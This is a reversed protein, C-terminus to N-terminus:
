PERQVGDQPSRDPSTTTGSPFPIPRGLARAMEASALYLDYTARAESTEATLLALQADSVELQTSLGRSFRLTALQFAERAESSTQQRAEFVASARTLEARGRAVEISVQEREQRLELDAIRAQARALSLNSKARFGDFVPISIVASLSRDSFWGGNQCVRDPATGGPCFEAAARGFQNPFGYGLPPFAQYGTQFSISATPLFDARAVTIGAHRASAVLEASRVAARQPTASSDDVSAVVARVTAPEITTTLAVPQDLPINLLQKLTLAAIDRDSRAQIVAPELNAREVRARLVDYRAAQGAAEFQQIQALRSEALALNNEQIGVLQETFLVNLYAREVDVTLQAQVEEENLRSADRVDNAAHSAAVVRGGQFVTQSVSATVNYTNPQNFLAGVAQGRASEYTHSYTSNIRLQPLGGARASSVQAAAVDVQAAALRAEDSTRLARDVAETLSLRITDAPGQSSAPHAALALATAAILFASKNM